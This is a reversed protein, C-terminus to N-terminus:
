ILIEFNLYEFGIISLFNVIIIIIYIYIIITLIMFYKTKDLNNENHMYKYM